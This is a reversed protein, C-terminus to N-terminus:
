KNRGVRGASSSFRRTAGLALLALLASMFSTGRRPAAATCGVEMDDTLEDMAQPALCVPALGERPVCNYGDPCVAAECTQSCAGKDDGARTICLRSHCDGHLECSGGLSSPKPRGEIWPVYGSELFAAQILEEHYALDLFVGHQFPGDCYTTIERTDDIVYVSPDLNSSGINVAIQAGSKESILPSGSDGLCVNTDGVVQGDAIALGPFQEQKLLSPGVSVIVGSSKQLGNPFHPRTDVAGWGASIIPDGPVLPTSKDLRLPPPQVFEPLNRDLLLAVIDHTCLNLNDPAFVKKVFAVADADSSAASIYPAGIPPAVFQIRIKEKPTEGLTAAPEFLTDEECHGQVNSSQAVCHRATLVINPAIASGTCSTVSSVVVGVYPYDHGAFEGGVIPLAASETHEVEEPPVPSGCAFSGFCALCLAFAFKGM